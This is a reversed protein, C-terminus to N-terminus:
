PAPRAPLDALKSLEGMLETRARQFEDKWVTLRLPEGTLKHASGYFRNEVPIPATRFADVKKQITLAAQQVLVMQTVAGGSRLTALNVTGLASVLSAFVMPEYSLSISLRSGTHNPYQDALRGVEVQCADLLAVISEIHEGQRRREQQDSHQRASAAQREGVLYACFVALMTGIGGFWTAADGIKDKDIGRTFQGFALAIAVWAGAFCTLLLLVEVWTLKKGM